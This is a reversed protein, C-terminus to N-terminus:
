GWPSAGGLLLAAAAAAAATLPISLNDDIRRSFLEALGGTLAAVFATGWLTSPGATTECLLMAARAALTGVIVFTLTGELSRGNILRIRGMRRGVLGALPDAFGLVAVATACLLPSFTLALLVLATMYWTASNVRDREQEHAIPRFFTMMAANARSSIRRLGEMTWAWAAFAGAAWPLQQSDLAVILGLCVVAASAHFASRTLNAPRLEPVRVRERRLATSLGAYTERLQAELEAWRSVDHPDIAAWSRLMEAVREISESVSDPVLSWDAALWEDLRRTAAELKDRVLEPTQIRLDLARFLGHLELALAHSLELTAVQATM